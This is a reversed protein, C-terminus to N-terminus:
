AHAAKALFGQGSLEEFTKLCLPKARSESSPLDMRICGITREKIKTNNDCIRRGCPSFSSASSRVRWPDGAIPEHM